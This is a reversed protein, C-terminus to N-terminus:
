SIGKQKEIIIPRYCHEGVVVGLVVLPGQSNMLHEGYFGISTNHTSHYKLNPLTTVRSLDRPLAMEVELKCIGMIQMWTSM